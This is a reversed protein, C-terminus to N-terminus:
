ILTDYGGFVQAAWNGNIQRVFLTITDTENDLLGLAGKHNGFATDADLASASLSNVIPISLMGNAGAVFSLNDQVVIGLQNLAPFIKLDTAGEEVGFKLDSSIRAHINMFSLPTNDDGIIEIADALSPNNNARVSLYLRGANVVSRIESRIQAYTLSDPSEFLNFNIKYIPEGGSPDEDVKTLNFDGSFTGTTARQIQFTPSQLLVSDGNRTLEGDGIPSTMSNNFILSNELLIFDGSFQTSTMSWKNVGEFYYLFGGGNASNNFAMNNSTNVSIQTDTVGTPAGTTIPFEIERFHGIRWPLLESGLDLTTSNNPLLTVNIDTTTLNDLETTASTTTSINSLNRAAGGSFVFTDTGNNAFSGSVSAPIGASITGIQLLNQVTMLESEVQNNTIITSGVVNNNTIIVEAGTPVNIRLSPTPLSPDFGITPATSVGAFSAAVDFSIDRSDRISHDLMNLRFVSAATEEFRAIEDTDARFIHSQLNDVNYLLGGEPNAKNQISQGAQFFDYTDIGLIVVGSGTATIGTIGALAGFNTAGQTLWNKTTNIVLDSLNGSFGSGSSSSGVSTAHTVITGNDITYLMVSFRSLATTSIAPPNVLSTPWIPSAFGGIANIDIIVLIGEYSGNPPLNTFNFEVARDLTIQQPNKTNWAITTTTPLTQPTLTNIGFIIPETLGGGGSTVGGTLERWTGGPANNFIILSADFLFAKIQLDGMTVDADSLTQINGGNGFTAQAITIPSNPAFTRLILIQGDFAAGAITDLTFTNPQIDEFQINSTYQSNSSSEGIDIIGDVDIEISFDVPPALALPGIVTDGATRFFNGTSGNDGAASVGAFATSSVPRPTNRNRQLGQLQKIEIQNKRLRDSATQIRRAKGV